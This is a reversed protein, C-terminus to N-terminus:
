NIVSCRLSNEVGVVNEQRNRCSKKQKGFSGLFLLLKGLRKRKEPRARPAMPEVM